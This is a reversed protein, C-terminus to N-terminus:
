MKWERLNEIRIIKGKEIIIDCEIGKGCSNCHEYGKWKANSKTTFTMGRDKVKIGDGVYWSYCRNFLDKSQFYTDKNNKILHPHRMDKNCLPCIIEGKVYISNSLGM